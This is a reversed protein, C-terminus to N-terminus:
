VEHYTHSYTIIDVTRISGVSEIYSDFTPTVNPTRRYDVIRVTTYITILFMTWWHLALYESPVPFVQM